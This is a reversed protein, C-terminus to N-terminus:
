LLNAIIEQPTKYIDWVWIYSPRWKGIPHVKCVTWITEITWKAIRNNWIVYVEEWIRYKPTPM